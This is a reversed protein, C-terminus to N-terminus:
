NSLTFIDKIRFFYRLIYLTATCSDLFLKQQQWINVQLMHLIWMWILHYIYQIFWIIYIYIYTHLTKGDNYIFSAFWQEDQLNLGTLLKIFPTYTTNIQLCLFPPFFCYCVFLFCGLISIPLTQHCCRTINLRNFPQSLCVIQIYALWAAPPFQLM